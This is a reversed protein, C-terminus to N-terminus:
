KGKIEEKPTCVLVPVFVEIRPSQRTKEAIGKRVPDTLLTDGGQAVSVPEPKV